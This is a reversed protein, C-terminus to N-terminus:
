FFLSPFKKNDIQFEIRKGEINNLNKLNCPIAYTYEELLSANKWYIEKNNHLSRTLEFFKYNTNRLDHITAHPIIPIDTVPRNNERFCYYM